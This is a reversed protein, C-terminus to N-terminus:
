ETREMMVTMPGDNTLTVQMHAGFRGTVVRPLHRRLATVYNDVLPKAAAPPAAASWSPRNGRRTDAMLTFQSVVLIEGGTEVVSREPGGDAGAFVRLSATADALAAAVAHSDDRAVGLLVVLGPGIRAVEVEEVSVHAGTVRQVL